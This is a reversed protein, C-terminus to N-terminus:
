LFYGDHHGFIPFGLIVSTSHRAVNLAPLYNNVEFQQFLKVHVVQSMSCLHKLWSERINNVLRMLLLPMPHSSQLVTERM